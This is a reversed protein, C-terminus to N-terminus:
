IIEGKLYKIASILILPNDYSFGIAHNCKHCLLGRVRGTHHNHDISIDKENIFEVGCIECKNKQDKLMQYYEEKKLHYQRLRDCFKCNRSYGGVRSKDKYFESIDLIEGCSSCKKLEYM